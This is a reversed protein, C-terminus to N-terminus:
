KQCGSGGCWSCTMERENITITGLGSCNSCTPKPMFPDDEEGGFYDTENDEPDDNTNIIM